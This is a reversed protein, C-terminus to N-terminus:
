TAPREERRRREERLRVYERRLERLHAEVERDFREREAREEATEKKRKRM